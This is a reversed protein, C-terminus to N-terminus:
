GQYGCPCRRNAAPHPYQAPYVHRVGDDNRADYWDLLGDTLKQIQDQSLNFTWYVNQEKLMTFDESMRFEPNCVRATGQKGNTELHHVEAEIMMRRMEAFNTMALIFEEEAMKLRAPLSIMLYAKSYKGERLLTTFAEYSTEPVRAKKIIEKQPTDTAPPPKSACGAAMIFLALLCFRM